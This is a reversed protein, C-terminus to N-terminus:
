GAGGLYRDLWDLSDKMIRAFPFVRGGDYLVHRKDAERTGLLKFMPLQSTEIPFTFDDRGNLMLVPTTVRPAFNIEDNQGIQGISGTWLFGTEPVSLRPKGQL